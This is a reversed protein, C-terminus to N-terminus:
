FQFCTGAAVTSTAMVAVAEVVGNGSLADSGVGGLSGRATSTM